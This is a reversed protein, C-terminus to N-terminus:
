VRYILLSDSLSLTELVDQVRARVCVCGHGWLVPRYVERGYFVAFEVILFMETSWSVVVPISLCACVCM